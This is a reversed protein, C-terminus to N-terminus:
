SDVMAATLLRTNHRVMDVYTSAPGGKPSLSDSFLEGGLKVGTEKAIQKVLRGDSMNEIFVARIHERRIQRVLDAVGKATPEADTSIGQPALFTIGYARGFYGFADHTTIVRRKEAPVKALAAKVEAELADLQALYATANATYADKGDPDAAILADRIDAVYIKTNAVSQWAHPDFGGHDHHGDEVAHGDEAEAADPTVGKSVVVVTARTGSAAILRDLWGELGLGNEFVVKAPAVTHADAPKPQFVHADGNPGVLTTVSVRDKGVQAVLDGLISFSAVVPMPGDARASPGFAAAVLLGGAASLLTRRTPGTM